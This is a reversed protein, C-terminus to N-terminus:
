NSWTRDIESRAIDMRATGFPKVRLEETMGIESTYYGSIVLEKLRRFFQSSADSPQFSRDFTRADERSIVGKLASEDLIHPSFSVSFAELASSFTNSDNAPYYNALMNDIFRHVGAAVAGPTDTPPIIIDAIRGVLSFQEATLFQLSYSESSPTSCGALLGSLTSASLTGGVLVGLRSIADRRNM